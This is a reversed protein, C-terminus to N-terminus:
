HILGSAVQTHTRVGNTYAAGAESAGDGVNEHYEQIVDILQKVDTDMQNMLMRVRKSVEAIDEALLLTIVTDVQQLTFLGRDLRRVYRRAALRKTKDEDSEGEEEEEDDDDEEEEKVESVQSYYKEHLEMLKDLKEYDNEFFKNLVRTHQEGSLRLLLSAIISVVHEEDEKV